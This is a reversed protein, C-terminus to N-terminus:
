TPLAIIVADVSADRIAESFDAYTAAEPFLVAAQTRNIEDADALAVVRVGTLKSLIPLHVSRAIAGCGLVGICIGRPLNEEM